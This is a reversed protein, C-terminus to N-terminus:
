RGDHVEVAIRGCGMASRGGLGVGVAAELLWAGVASTEVQVIGTWGRLRGDGGIKHVHRKSSVEVCAPQTRDFVVRVPVIEPLLATIGLRVAITRALTSSLGSETPAHQTRREERGEGEARILVPTETAITVRYRGPARAAPAAVALAPGISLLRSAPGIRQHVRRDALLKAAEAGHTLLWWCRAGPWASFKADRGHPDRTLATAVGHWVTAYGIGCVWAPVDADLRMAWGLPGYHTPSALAWPDTTAGRSWRSAFDAIRCERSCTTTTRRASTVQTGCMPCYRPLHKLYSLGPEPAHGDM